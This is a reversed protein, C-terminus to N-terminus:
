GPTCEGDVCVAERECREAPPGDCCGQGVAGCAEGECAGDENCVLGMACGSGMGECCAQGAAGCSEHCTGMGAGVCVGEDCALAACCRQDSAGCEDGPMPGGTEAHAGAAGGGSNGDAGSSGSSGGSGGSSSSGGSSGGSSSSAGSGSSTNGPSTTTASGHTSVSGATTGSVTTTVQSGSSNELDNNDSGCGSAVVGATLLAVPGWVVFRPSIVRAFISAPNM